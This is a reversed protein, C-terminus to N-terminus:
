WKMIPLNDPFKGWMVPHQKGNVARSVNSSVYRFLEIATITRNRDYDAYGRLGKDLYTTFIGNQWGKREYSKENGRSSLFLLVDAKRAESAEANQKDNKERIKGSYCADAFILKHRSSGHAMANRVASYPLRGNYAAFGGPYGHGSFFLLVMDNQSAKSYLETMTRVINEKTAESNTLLVTTAESNMKFLDRIAKADGAALRLDNATGPYDSIGVSVLYVKAEAVFFISALALILLISRIRVM